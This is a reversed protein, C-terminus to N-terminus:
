LKFASGVAFLPLRPRGTDPDVVREDRAPPPALRASNSRKRGVVVAIAVASQPNSDVVVEGDSLSSIATSALRRNNELVGIANRDTGFHQGTIVYLEGKREVSIPGRHVLMGNKEDYKFGLPGGLLVVDAPKKWAAEYMFGVMLVGQDGSDQVVVPILGGTKEFDLEM